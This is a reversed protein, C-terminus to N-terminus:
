FSFNHFKSPSNQMKGDKKKRKKRKEEKGLYSNITFWFIPGHGAQGDHRELGFLEDM